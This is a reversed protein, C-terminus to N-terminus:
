CATVIEVQVITYYSMPYISIYKCANRPNRWGSRVCITSFLYNGRDYSVVVYIVYQCSTVLFM